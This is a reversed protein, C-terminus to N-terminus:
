DNTIKRKKKPSKRGFIDGADVLKVGDDDSDNDNELNSRKLARIQRKLKLNQEKMKRFAKNKNNNEVPNDCKKGKGGKRPRIGPRKNEAM